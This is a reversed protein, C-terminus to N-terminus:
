KQPFSVHSPLVADDFGCGRRSVKHTRMIYQVFLETLRKKLNKYLNNAYGCM